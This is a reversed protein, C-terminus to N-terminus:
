PRPPDPNKGADVLEARFVEQERRYQGCLSIYRETSSGDPKLPLEGWLKSQYDFLRRADVAARGEPSNPPWVRKAIAVGIMETIFTDGNELARALGQCLSVVDPQNLREGKCANSASQYAPIAEAALIGIVAVSAESLSISGGQAIKPTLKAILRTYYLDV